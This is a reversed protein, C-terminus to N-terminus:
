LWARVRFLNCAHVPSTKRDRRRATATVDYKKRNEVLLVPVEKLDDWRAPSSATSLSTLSATPAGRSLRRDLVETKGKAAWERNIRKELGGATAENHSQYILLKRITDLITSKAAASIKRLVGQRNHYQLKKTSKRDCASCLM